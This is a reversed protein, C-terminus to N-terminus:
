SGFGLWNGAGPHGLAPALLRVAAIYGRWGPHVPDWPHPVQSIANITLPQKCSEFGLFLLQNTKLFKSDLSNQLRNVLGWEVM